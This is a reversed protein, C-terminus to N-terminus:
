SLNTSNLSSQEVAFASMVEYVSTWQQWPSYTMGLAPMNDPCDQVAIVVTETNLKCEM